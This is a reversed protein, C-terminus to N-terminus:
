EACLPALVLLGGGQAVLPWDPRVRGPRRAAWGAVLAVAGTLLAVVIGILQRRLAVVVVTSSTRALVGSGVVQLLLVGAAALGVAVPWPRRVVLVLLGASGLLVLGPPVVYDHTPSLAWRLGVAAAAVVLAIGQALACGTALQIRGNM